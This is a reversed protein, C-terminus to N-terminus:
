GSTQEGLNKSESAQQVVIDQPRAFDLGKRTFSKVILNKM